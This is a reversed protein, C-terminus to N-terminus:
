LSNNVACSISANVRSDNSHGRLYWVSSNDAGIWFSDGDADFKGGIKTFGCFPPDATKAVTTYAYGTANAPANLTYEQTRESSSVGPVCLAGVHLYDNPRASTAVLSTSGDLIWRGNVDRIRVQDNSGFPGGVEIIWCVRDSSSGMDQPPDGTTHLPRASNWRFFNHLDRPTNLLCRARSWRHGPNTSVFTYWNTQGKVPYTGIYSAESAGSQQLSGGLGVLFCSSTAQPALNMELSTALKTDAGYDLGAVTLAESSTEPAAEGDTDVGCAPVALGAALTMVLRARSLSM